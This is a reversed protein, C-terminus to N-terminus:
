SVLHLNTLVMKVRAIRKIGTALPNIVQNGLTRTSDKRRIPTPTM